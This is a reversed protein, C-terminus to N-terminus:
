YMYGRVMYFSLRGQRQAEFMLLDMVSVLDTLQQGFIVTDLIVSV